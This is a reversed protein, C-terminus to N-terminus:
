NYDDGKECRLYFSGNGRPDMYIFYITEDVNMRFSVPKTKDYEEPLEAGHERVFKYVLAHEKEKDFLFVGDKGSDILKRVEGSLAHRIQMQISQLKEIEQLREAELREALLQEAHLKKARLQEAHLQKARLKMFEVKRLEEKGNANILAKSWLGKDFNGDDVEQEAQAYYRPDPEDSIDAEVLQTLDIINEASQQQLQKARMKIYEAKQIDENGKAEVLAKAELGKEATGNELEQKAQAYHESSPQVLLKEAGEKAKTLLKMFVMILAIILGVCAGVVLGKLM